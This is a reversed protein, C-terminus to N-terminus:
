AEGGEDVEELARDECTCPCDGCELCEGQLRPSSPADCDDAYRM